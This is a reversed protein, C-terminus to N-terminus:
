EKECVIKRSLLRNKDTLRENATIVQQIVNGNFLQKSIGWLQEKSVGQPPVCGPTVRGWLTNFLEVGDRRLRADVSSSSSFNFLAWCTNVLYTSLDSLPGNGQAETEFRTKKWFREYWFQTQKAHFHVCKLNPNESSHNRLFVRRWASVFFSLYPRNLLSLIPFFSRLSTWLAIHTM